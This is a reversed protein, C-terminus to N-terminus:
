EPPIQTFNLDTNIGERARVARAIFYYVFTGVLLLSPLVVLFSTLSSARRRTTM